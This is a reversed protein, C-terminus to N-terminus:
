SIQIRDSVGLCTNWDAAKIRGCQMFMHLWRIGIPLRLGDQNKVRKFCYSRILFFQLPLGWSNAEWWWVTCLPLSRSGKAAGLPWQVTCSRNENPLLVSHTTLLSHSCIKPLSTHILATDIQARLSCSGSNELYSPPSNYDSLM